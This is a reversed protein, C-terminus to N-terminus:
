AQPEKVTAAAVLARYADDDSGGANKCRWWAAVAEPPSWDTHVLAFGLPTARNNWRRGHGWEEGTELRCGCEDCAYITSRTHDGVQEIQAASGCFPCPKLPIAETM